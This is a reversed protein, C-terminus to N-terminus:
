LRHWVLVGVGFLVWYVLGFLAGMEADIILVGDSRRRAGGFAPLIVEKRSDPEVRVRGLSLIPTISYGTLYGVVHFVIEFVPQLIAEAISSLPM